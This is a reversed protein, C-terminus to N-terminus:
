AAEDRKPDEASSRRDREDSEGRDISGLALTIGIAVGVFLGILGFFSGLLGFFAMLLLALLINGVTDLVSNPM